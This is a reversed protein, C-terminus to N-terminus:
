FLSIVPLAALMVTVAIRAISMTMQIWLFHIMVIKLIHTIMGMHTNVVL